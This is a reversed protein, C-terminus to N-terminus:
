YKLLDKLYRAYNSNGFFKIRNILNKKNIWKNNLSIEELCGIMYNQRQEINQIFNSGNQLDEFSGVDLWASGRGLKIINLLKKKKYM